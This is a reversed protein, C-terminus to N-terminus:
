PTEGFKCGFRKAARRRAMGVEKDGMQELRMVVLEDFSRLSLNVGGNVGYLDPDPMVRAEDSDTVWLHMVGGAVWAYISGRRLSM